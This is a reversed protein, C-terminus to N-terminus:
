GSNKFGFTTLYIGIHLPYISGIWTYDGFSSFYIMNRKLLHKFKGGGMNKLLRGGGGPTYFDIKGDADFDGWTGGGGVGPSEVKKFSKGQQNHWLTGGDFLDVWGDADFDIWHASGGGLGKLGVAATINKWPRVKQAWGDGASILVAALVIAIVRNVGSM